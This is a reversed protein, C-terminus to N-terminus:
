NATLKSEIQQWIQKQIYNAKRIQKQKYNVKELEIHYICIQKRVFPLKLDAMSVTQSLPMGWISLLAFSFWGSLFKFTM